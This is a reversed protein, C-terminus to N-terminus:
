ARGQVTPEYKEGWAVSQSTKHGDERIKRKAWKMGHTFAQDLTRFAYYRTSGPGNSRSKCQCWGNASVQINYSFKKGDYATPLEDSVMRINSTGDANHFELFEIM